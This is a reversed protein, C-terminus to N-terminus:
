RLAGTLSFTGNAVTLCVSTETTWLDMLSENNAALRGIADWEVFVIRCSLCTSLISYHQELASLTFSIATGAVSKVNPEVIVLHGIELAELNNEIPSSRRSISIWFREADFTVDLGHSVFVKELGAHEGLSLPDEGHRSLLLATSRRM